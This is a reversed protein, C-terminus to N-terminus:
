FSLRFDTIKVDTLLQDQTSKLTQNVGSLSLTVSGSDDENSCSSLAIIAALFLFKLTNM